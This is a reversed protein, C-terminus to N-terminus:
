SEQSTVSCEGKVKDRQEGLAFLQCIFLFYIGVQDGDSFLILSALWVIPIILILKLLSRRRVPIKFVM